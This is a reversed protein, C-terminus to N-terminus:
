RSMYGVFTYVIAIIQCVDAGWVFLEDSVGESISIKEGRMAICLPLLVPLLYRAGVSPCDTYGKPTAFLLMAMYVAGVCLICILFTGMRIKKDFSYVEKERAIIAFLVLLWWINYVFDPIFSDGWGIKMGIMGNWYYDAYKYITNYTYKILNSKDGIIEDSSKWNSESEAYLESIEFDREEIAAEQNQSITDSSFHSVLVNDKFAFALCICVFAAKMINAHKWGFKQNPLMVVFICFPLYAYKIPFVIIGIILFALADRWNIQEKKYLVRCFLAFLLTLLAYNMLDYTFSTAMSLALPFQATLFLIWKGTPLLYIAVYIILTYFILGILNSLTFSWVYNLQLVRALWIGIEFPLYCLSSARSLGKGNVIGMTGYGTASDSAFCNDYYDYLSERSPFSVVDILEETRIYIQREEDRVDKGMIQNVYANAQAYHTPEDPYSYPPMLLLYIIGWGIASVLFCKEAKRTIERTNMYAHLLMVLLSIAVFGFYLKKMEGYDAILESLKQYYSMLFFLVTIGIILVSRFFAYGIKKWPISITLIILLGMIWIYMGVDKTTYESTNIGLLLSADCAEGNVYATGLYCEAEKDILYLEASADGEISLSISYIGSEDLKQTKLPFTQKVRCKIDAIEVASQGKTNGEADTMAVILKGDSGATKDKIVLEISTLKMTRGPHFEQIVRGGDILTFTQTQEWEFSGDPTYHISASPILHLPYLALLCGLMLIIAAIKIYRFLHPIKINQM